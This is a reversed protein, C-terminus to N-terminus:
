SSHNDPATDAVRQPKRPVPDFRWAHPPRAILEDPVDVLGRGSPDIIVVRPEGASSRFVQAAPDAHADAYAVLDDLRGPEARVEWMLTPM